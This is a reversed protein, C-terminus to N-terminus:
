MGYYFEPQLDSRIDESRGAKTFALRMHDHPIVQISVIKELKPFCNTINSQWSPIDRTRCGLDFMITKLNPFWSGLVLEEMPDCIATLHELFSHPEQDIDPASFSLRLICLKIANLRRLLRPIMSVMESYPVDPSSDKDGFISAITPVMFIELHLVDLCPFELINLPYDEQFELVLITEGSGHHMLRLETLSLPTKLPRPLGKGQFRVTNDVWSVLHLTLVRANPYPFLLGEFESTNRASPLCFFHHMNLRESTQLKVFVARLRPFYIGLWKPFAEVLKAYKPNYVIHVEEVYAALHPAVALHRRYRLLADETTVFRLVRFLLARSRPHWGHCVLSAASEAVMPSAPSLESTPTVYCPTSM